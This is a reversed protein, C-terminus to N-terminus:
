SQNESDHDASRAGPGASAHPETAIDEELWKGADELEAKHRLIPLPDLQRWAPATAILSAMLGGIRVAWWVAGVSFALGAIRAADLVIAFQEGENGKDRALQAPLEFRPAVAAHDANVQAFSSLILRYEDQMNAGNASPEKNSEPRIIAIGAASFGARTALAESRSYQLLQNALGQGSFLDDQAQALSDLGLAGTGLGSGALLGEAIRQADTQITTITGQGTKGSQSGSGTTNGATGAGDSSGTGGSGTDTGSLDSSCV